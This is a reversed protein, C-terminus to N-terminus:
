LNDPYQNKKTSDLERLKKNVIKTISHFGAKRSITALNTLIVILQNLEGKSHFEYLGKNRCDKLQEILSDKGKGSLAHFMEAISEFKNPKSYDIKEISKSEALLDFFILLQKKSFVGKEKGKTHNTAAHVINIEDKYHTLLPPQKIQESSSYFGPSTLRGATTKLAQEFNQDAKSLFEHLIDPHENILLKNLGEICVPYYVKGFTALYYLVSILLSFFYKLFHLSRYNIIFASIEEINDGQDSEQRFIQYLRYHGLLRQYVDQNYWGTWELLRCDLRGTLSNLRDKWTYDRELSDVVHLVSLDM